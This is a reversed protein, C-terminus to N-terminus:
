PKPNLIPNLPPTEERKGLNIQNLPKPAQPKPNLTDEPKYPQM